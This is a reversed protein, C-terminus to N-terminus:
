LALTATADAIKAVLNAAGLRCFPLRCLGGSLRFGARHGPEAPLRHLLRSLREDLDGALGLCPVRAVGIKSFRMLM